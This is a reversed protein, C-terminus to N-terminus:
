AILSLLGAAGSETTDDGGFLALVGGSPDLDPNRLDELVLFRQV